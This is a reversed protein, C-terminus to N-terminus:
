HERVHKRPRVLASAKDNLVEVVSRGTHVESASQPLAVAEVILRERPRVLNAIGYLAGYGAACVVSMVALLRFLTPM